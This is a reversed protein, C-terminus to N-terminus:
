EEENVSQARAQKILMERITAYWQMQQGLLGTVGLDTTVATYVVQLLTRERHTMGPPPWIRSLQCLLGTLGRLARNCEKTTFGALRGEKMVQATVRARIRACDGHTCNNGTIHATGSTTRMDSATPRRRRKPNSM